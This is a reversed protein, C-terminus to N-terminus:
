KNQLELRNQQDPLQKKLIMKGDPSILPNWVNDYWEDVKGNIAIGYKRNKEVKAAVVEGKSGLVPDWVM